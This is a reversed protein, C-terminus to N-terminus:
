EFASIWDVELLFEGEKGDGLLIRLQEVKSLQLEPGELDEGRWTPKMDSFKVSVVTWEGEKTEFDAAYDIHSGNKKADTAMRFQYTRGDGKIRLKVGSYKSLDWTGPETQLSAFGGDNKLSIKGSFILSGNMVKGTGESLGGMVGDNEALWKPQNESESFDYLQKDEAM